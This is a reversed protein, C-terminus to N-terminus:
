KRRWNEWCHRYYWSRQHTEGLKEAIVDYERESDRGEILHFQVQLNRIHRHLGADIVHPLLEYEMGEVNMKLLAIERYQDLLENIDFCDYEHTAPEHASTYYYAGGVQMTGNHTAALKNVVEGHQWDNAWPGPEVCVVKCGYRCHVAQAWEGRYAGLDIVISDPLLDPYEYRLYELGRSQWIDQSQENLTVHMTHCTGAPTAM